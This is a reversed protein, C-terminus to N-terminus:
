LFDVGEKLVPKQTDEQGSIKEKSPSVMKGLFIQVSTLTKHEGLTGHVMTEQKVLTKWM